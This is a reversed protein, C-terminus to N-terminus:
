KLDKIELKVLWGLFSQGIRSEKSDREVELLNGVEEDGAVRAEEKRFNKLSLIVFRDEASGGFQINTGSGGGLIGGGEREVKEGAETSSTLAIMSLDEFEVQRSSMIGVKRNFDQRSEKISGTVVMMLRERASAVKGM